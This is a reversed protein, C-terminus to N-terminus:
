SAPRGTAALGDAAGAFRPNVEAVEATIRRAEGQQGSLELAEALQLRNFLKFIGQGDGWYVLGRDAERFRAAAAAFDGEALLRAGTMHAVVAKAATGEAHHGAIEGITEEMARAKEIQGALLAARHSLVRVEGPPHKCTPGEAVELAGEWDGDRYERWFAIRCREQAILEEACVELAEARDLTATAEGPRGQLAAVLVLHSWSACFDPRIRVAEELEEKAEQYRGQLTYLEGMSDHPNAQDPAVYLYTRFLNEADAFRGQAMALYGLQNQATVWNPDLELLRRNCAEAESWQQRDWYRHCRFQLVYPDNPHDRLYGGLVEEVDEPEGEVRAVFHRVMFRERPTLHSLDAAALETAIEAVQEKTVGPKLDLVKLRALVFDPDLALAREYSALADRRYFRMEAELGEQFAAFAEPSRTTWRPEARPWLFAGAATVAALVLLAVLWKRMM